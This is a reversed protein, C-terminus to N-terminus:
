DIDMAMGAAFRLWRLTEPALAPAASRLVERIRELQGATPRSFTRNFRQRWRYLHGEAAGRIEPDDDTLAQLIWAIGDWKGRWSLLRLAHRRAHRPNGPLFTSALVASDALHARCRLADAAARSVRPHVSGLSVAFVPAFADGALRALARVAASRVRPREHTLLHRLADADAATGTEGLGLAAEALRPGDSAIEGRYFAAFDMPGQRTVIARAHVRVAAGRDLLADTLPPLSALGRREASLELATLRVRIFPDALMRPLLDELSVDDLRAAARAAELRVAVDDSGLGRFVVDALEPAGPRTLIRFCARVAVPDPVYLGGLVAERVNDGDLLELVADVLPRAGGRNTERLRLLLRLARIWHAAYEPRVRTGLAEVARDRVPLVWDNARLLLPALERGDGVLALRRVAAERVYGNPVSALLGLVAGETGEPLALRRVDDPARLWSLVAHAPRLTLRRRLVEDLRPRDRIPTADVLERLRESAAPAFRGGLENMLLVLLDVGWAPCDKRLCAPVPRMAPWLRRTWRAM